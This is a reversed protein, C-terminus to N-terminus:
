CLVSDNVNLGRRNLPSAVRHDLTDKYFFTAPDIHIKSQKYRLIETYPEGKCHLKEYTSPLNIVIQPSPIDGDVGLFNEEGLNKKKRIGFYM